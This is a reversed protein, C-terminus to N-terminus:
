KPTTTSATPKKNKALEENVIKMYKAPDKAFDKSCGTCCLNIIKGKYVVPVAAGMAGIKEKSIPCIKNNLATTKSLQEKSPKLILTDQINKTVGGFAFAALITTLLAIKHM